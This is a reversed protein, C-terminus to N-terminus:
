KVLLLLTKAATNNLLGIILFTSMAFRARIIKCITLIYKDRQLKSYIAQIGDDSYQDVFHFMTQNQENLQIM